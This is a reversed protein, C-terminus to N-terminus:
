LGTKNLNFIVNRARRVNIAFGRFTRQRPSVIIRIEAEPYIAFWRRGCNCSLIGNFICYRVNARDSFYNM